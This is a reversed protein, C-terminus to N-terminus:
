NPNFFSDPLPDVIYIAIDIDKYYVIFISLSESNAGLVTGYLLYREEELYGLLIRTTKSLQSSLEESLTTEIYCNNNSYFAGPPVIDQVFIKITVFDPEENETIREINGIIEIESISNNVMLNWMEEDYELYIIDTELTKFKGM